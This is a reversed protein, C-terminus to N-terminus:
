LIRIGFQRKSIKFSREVNWLQKYKNVIEIDNNNTKHSTFYGKIGLLLKAKIILKQNLEFKREEKKNEQDKKNDIRVLFKARKIIEAKSPTKLIEEAKVLQKELERKDKHYRKQSFHYVLDDKGEITIRATKDDEQKLEQSIKHITTLPLNAMRAGVIYDITAKLFISIKKV